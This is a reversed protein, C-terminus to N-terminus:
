QGVIDPKMPGLLALLDNKEKAGVKFKDLAAVLDEVLANFNADTIGMGKHAAKMTKGTYKCPGGSGQCILNVLNTKFKALRMTDSATAKFFTNIRKDRAVNTVFQDVVAVIATRGGLRDYLSKGTTAASGMVATALVLLVACVTRVIAKPM